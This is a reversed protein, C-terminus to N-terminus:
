RGGDGGIIFLPLIEKAVITYKALLIKTKM